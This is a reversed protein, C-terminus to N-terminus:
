APAPMALKSYLLCHVNCWQQHCHVLAFGEGALAFSKQLPVEEEQHNPAIAPALHDHIHTTELVWQDAANVLDQFVHPPGLSISSMIM